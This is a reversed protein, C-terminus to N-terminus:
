AIRGRRKEGRGAKEDSGLQEREWLFVFSSSLIYFCFDLLFVFVHGFLAIHSSLVAVFISNFGNQMPWSSSPM